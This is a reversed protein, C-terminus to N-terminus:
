LPQNNANEELVEEVNEALLNYILKEEPSLSEFDAGTTPEDARWDRGVHYQKCNSCYYNHVRKKQRDNLKQATRVAVRQSYKRKRRCRNYERKRSRNM